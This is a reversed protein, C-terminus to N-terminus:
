TLTGTGPVEHPRFRMPFAMPVDGIGPVAAALQHPRKWQGHPRKWAWNPHM